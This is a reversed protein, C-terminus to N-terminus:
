SAESNQQNWIKLAYEEADIRFLFNCHRKEGNIFVNFGCPNGCYTRPISKIKVKEGNVTITRQRAQRKINM